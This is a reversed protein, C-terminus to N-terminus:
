SSRNLNIEVFIFVFVDAKAMIGHELLSELSNSCNSIMIPTAHEFESNINVSTLTSYVHNKYLLYQTNSNILLLWNLMTFLPPARRDAVNCIPPAIEGETGLNEM